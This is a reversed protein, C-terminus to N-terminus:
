RRAKSQTTINMHLETGRKLINGSRVKRLSGAKFTGSGPFRRHRVLKAYDGRLGAGVSYETNEKNPM